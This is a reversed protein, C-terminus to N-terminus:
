GSVEPAAITVKQDFNTIELTRVIDAPEAQGVPGELRVRRLRFDKQGTWLTFPVLRASGKVAVLPAVVAAPV